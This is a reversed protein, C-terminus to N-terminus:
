ASHHWKNVLVFCFLVFSSNCRGYSGAIGNRFIYKFFVFVTSWFSIYVGINMAANNVITLIHFCGLHEDAAIHTYLFRWVQM